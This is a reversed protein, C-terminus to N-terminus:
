YLLTFANLPVSLIISIVKNANNQVYERFFSSLRNTYDILESTEVLDSFDTILFPNESIIDGAYRSCSPAHAHNPNNIASILPIHDNVSNVFFEICKALQKKTFDEIHRIKEKWKSQHNVEVMQDVISTTRAPSHFTGENFYDDKSMFNDDHDINEDESIIPAAEFARPVRTSKPIDDRKSKFLHLSEIRTSIERIMGICEHLKALLVALKNFDDKLSEIHYIMDHKNNIPIIIKKADKYPFILRYVYSNMQYLKLDWQSGKQMRDWYIIDSRTSFLENIVLLLMSDIADIVMIYSSSLDEIEQRKISCNEREELSQEPLLEQQRYYDRILDLTYITLQIQDLSLGTISHLM